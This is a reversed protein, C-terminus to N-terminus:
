KGVLVATKNKQKEIGCLAKGSVSKGQKPAM